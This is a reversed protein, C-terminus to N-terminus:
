DLTEGTEYGDAHIQNIEVVEAWDFGYKNFVSESKIHRKLGNEILYVNASNAVKFMKVDPYSNIDLQNIRVVNGWYNSDYSVFVTPSPINIKLWKLEPRQFLHYITPNTPTRVLNANPYSNLVSKSVNKVENWNCQYENFSEPSTIYHRQGNELIAWIDPSYTTKYLAKFKTYGLDPNCVYTPAPTYNPQGNNEYNPQNTYDGLVQGNNNNQNNNSNNGNINNYYLVDNVSCGEPLPYVKLADSLGFTFFANHPGRDAYYIVLEHYGATLTIPESITAPTHAGKLDAVLNGDFYVWSDDDSTVGYRYEGTQPVEVIARWKIAFHFPDGLKGEDIPFFASGFDLNEDIRSFSYYQSTYWDNEEAIRIEPKITVSPAWYEMDPHDKTLNFYTGYYGSTTTFNVNCSASGLVTGQNNTNQNNNYNNYNNSEQTNTDGKTKFAYIESRTVAGLIDRAELEYYYTTNPTLGTLTINKIFDRPPNSEDNQNLADPSTGYRVYGKAVKNTRWSIVASTKTINQDNASVPSVNYILLEDRDSVNTVKTRFTMDHYRSINNDEDKSRVRFHYYTGDVLGGITIDHINTLHGDSATSGYNTTMGYEVETTAPEDTEWQITATAGTTYIVRVDSIDPSQNDTKEYTEFKQEFSTVATNEDEATIRLYYYTDPYLGSITIAHNTEMSGTRISWNYDNSYLGYEVKGYAKRNTQWQITATTDTYNITIKNIVLPDSALAVGTPLLIGALIGLILQYFVVKKLINKTINQSFLTM